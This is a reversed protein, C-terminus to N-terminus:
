IANDILRIIRKFETDLAASFYDIRCVGKYNPKKSKKGISRPDIRAKYFQSLPIGTTDSWFKELKKVNQDARGQLTCRFKTEDIKYCQRLLKMYLRIILPDSNGFTTSGRRNKSGEALYLAILVLKSDDPQEILKTLHYNRADINKFLTERKKQKSLLSLKRAMILHKKNSARIKNKYWAPLKVHGCWNSLTSKPVSHPLIKLIEAYTKGTSRLHLALNKTDNHM